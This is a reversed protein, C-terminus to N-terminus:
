RRPAGIKDQLIHRAGVIDAFSDKPILFFTRPDFYLYFFYPTELFSSFANWQWGKRFSGKEIAMENSDFDVRFKEKFTTSKRYIIYPLLFWFSIMLTFWLGSSLLFAVPNVKHTFYLFASFIAFVNILIIM